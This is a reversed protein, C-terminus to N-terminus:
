YKRIASNRRMSQGKHTLKMNTVRNQRFFHFIEVVGAELIGGRAQITPHSISGNGYCHNLYQNRKIDLLVVHAADDLIFEGHM